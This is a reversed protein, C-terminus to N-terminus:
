DQMTQSQERWAAPLMGLSVARAELRSIERTIVAMEAELRAVEMQLARIRARSQQAAQAARENRKM